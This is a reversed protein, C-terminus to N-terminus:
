FPIVNGAADELMKMEGPMLDIKIGERDYRQLLARVPGSLDSEKRLISCWYDILCVRKYEDIVAVAITRWAAEPMQEVLATYGAGWAAVAAKRAASQYVNM